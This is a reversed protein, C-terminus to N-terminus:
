RNAGRQSRSRPAPASGNAKPEEKPEEEPLWEKRRVRRKQLAFDALLELAEQREPPTLGTLHREADSQLGGRLTRTHLSWLARTDESMPGFEAELLDAVDAGAAIEALFRILTSKIRSDRAESAEDGYFWGFPKKVLRAYEIMTDKRPLQQGGWWKYVTNHPIGLREGVEFGTLHLENAAKKMRQGVVKRSPADLNEYWM